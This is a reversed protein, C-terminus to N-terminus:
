TREPRPEDAAHNAPSSMFVTARGPQTCDVVQIDGLFKPLVGKVYKPKEPETSAPENGNQEADPDEHSM